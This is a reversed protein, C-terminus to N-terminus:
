QMIRRTEIDGATRPQSCRGSRCAQTVLVCGLYTKGCGTLGTILVDHDQHIWRSSLLDACQSKQLGHHHRYDIDEPYAQLKIKTLKLLRTVKNYNRYTAERCVLLALREDFL